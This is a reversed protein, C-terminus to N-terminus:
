KERALRVEFEHHERFFSIEDSMAVLFAEAKSRLLEDKKDISAICAAVEDRETQMSQAKLSAYAGVATGALTGAVGLISAVLAFTNSEAM